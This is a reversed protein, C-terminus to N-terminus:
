PPGPLQIEAISWEFHKDRGIQRISVKQALCEGLFRLLVEQQPGFYPYGSESILLAGEWPNEVRVECIQGEVDRVETRLGRPFDSPFYGLDLRLLPLKREQGPFFQLEFVEAGSQKGGGSSWRTRPNGDMAKTAMEPHFKASLSGDSPRVSHYQEPLVVGLAHVVDRFGYNLFVAYAPSFLKDALNQVENQNRLFAKTPEQSRAHSLNFMMGLLALLWLSVRSFSDEQRSLQLLESFLIFYILHGFALRLLPLHVYEPILRAFSSIPMIKAWLPPVIETDLMIFVALALIVKQLGLTQFFSNQTELRKTRLYNLAAFIMGVLSWPGYVHRARGWDYALVNPDSGVLPRYHEVLGWSSVFHGAEPLVPLNPAPTILLRSIAPLFLSLVIFRLERAKEGGQIAIGLVFLLGAEALGIQGCFISNVISLLIFRFYIKRSPAYGSLLFLVDRLLWPFLAFCSILVTDVGWFMLLVFPLLAFLWSKSGTGNEEKRLWEILELSGLCSLLLLSGMFLDYGHPLRSFVTQLLPEFAWPFFANTQFEVIDGTEGRLFLWFGSDSYPVGSSFLFLVLYSVLVALFLTGGVRRSSLQPSPASDNFQM